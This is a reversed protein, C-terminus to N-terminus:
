GAQTKSSEDKSSTTDTSKSLETDLANKLGAQTKSSTTDTTTKNTAM